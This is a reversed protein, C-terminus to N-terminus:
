LQASSSKDGTHKPLTPDSQHQPIVDAQVKERRSFYIFPVSLFFIGASLMYSVPYGWMDASKGLAPQIVIGGSSNLLNDSSLVTAREKSPILDNLYAQRIPLSLSSMMAWVILLIIVIWFNAFVGILLLSVVSLVSATILITTRLRFYNRVKPALIGGAIQSLAIIGAAIGAISYSETRGYLQLLYPQIAYFAYGVVAGSFPGALMIWRVPRNRIGHTLSSSLISRVEQSVSEGKRPSFGVDHMLLYAILFTVGLTAARLFYPVGLNTFQAIVGGSITGLLMAAGTAIQGKAFASEMSGKYGTGKLGDVLWAETAGSFFTYGLGLFASVVAWAWFPGQIQWLWVYLLTSLGLSAAGLLFSIRRGATDAVVGTPVEFIVMGLTFFANAAFAATISLGADLLFITNIGWILSAAFTSLASLTVYTKLIQHASTKM